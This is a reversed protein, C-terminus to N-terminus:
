WGGARRLAEDLDAALSAAPADAAPRLARIVVRCGAPLRDVHSRMVHRLRRKVRNRVVASGVSRSVIIGVEPEGARSADPLVHVVLHTRGAKAGQRVTTSFDESTRM